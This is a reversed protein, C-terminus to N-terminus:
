EFMTTFAGLTITIPTKKLKHKSEPPSRMGGLDQHGSRHGCWYTMLLPVVCAFNSSCAVKPFM